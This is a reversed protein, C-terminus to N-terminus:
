VPGPSMHYHAQSFPQREAAASAARHTERAYHFVYFPQLLPPLQPLLRLLLLLLFLRTTTTNASKKDITRNKNKKNATTKNKPPRPTEWPPPPLQALPDDCPARRPGAAVCTVNALKKGRNEHEYRM